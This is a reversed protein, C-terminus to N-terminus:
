INKITSLSPFLDVTQKNKLWQSKPLSFTRFLNAFHMIQFDPYPLSMPPKSQLSFRGRIFDELFERTFSSSPLTTIQVFHFHLTTYNKLLLSLFNIKLCTDRLAIAMLRRLSFITLSYYRRWEENCRLLFVVIIFSTDLLIMKVYDNSNLSSTHSYCRHVRAERDRITTVLNEVNLEVKEVFIKFYTLKNEM